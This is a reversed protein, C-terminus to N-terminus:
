IKKAKKLLWAVMEGLDPWTYPKKNEKQWAPIVKEHMRSFFMDIHQKAEIIESILEADDGIFIIAPDATEEIFKALQGPGRFQGDVWFGTRITREM